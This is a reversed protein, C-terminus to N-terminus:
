RQDREERLETILQQLGAELSATFFRCRQSDHLALDQTSLGAANLDALTEVRPSLVLLREDEKLCILEGSLELGGPSALLLPRGQALEPDLLIQGLSLEEPAHLKLLGHITDFTGDGLRGLSPGHSLMQGNARVRAHFPFLQSLQELSLTCAASGLASAKRREFWRMHGCEFGNEVRPWWRATSRFRM